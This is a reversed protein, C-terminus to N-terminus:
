GYRSTPGIQMSGGRPRYQQGGQPIQPGQGQGRPPIGADLRGLFNWSGNSLTIEGQAVPVMGRGGEKAQIVLDLTGVEELEPPGRRERDQDQDQDQDRFSTQQDERQNRPVPPSFLKARIATIRRRPLPRFEQSSYRGVAVPEEQQGTAEEFTVELDGLIYRDRGVSLFGQPPPPRRRSSPHFSGQGSSDGMWAQQPQSSSVEEQGEQQEQRAVFVLLDAPANEEGDFAFGPIRL